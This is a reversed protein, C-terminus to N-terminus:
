EGEIRALITFLDEFDRQLRQLMENGDSAKSKNVAVILNLCRTEPVERLCVAPISHPGDSASALFALIGALSREVSFPLTYGAKEPRQSAVLNEFPRSVVNMPQHLLSLTAIDEACAIATKQAEDHAM